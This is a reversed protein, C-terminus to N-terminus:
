NRQTSVNAQQTINLVSDVGSKIIGLIKEFESQEAVQQQGGNPNQTPNTPALDSTNPRIFAVYVLVGIVLWLVMSESM